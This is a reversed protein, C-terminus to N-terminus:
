RERSKNFLIAGDRRSRDETCDEGSPAAALRPCRRLLEDLGINAPVRTHHVSVAGAPSWGAEFALESRPEPSQVGADDYVDILTGDATWGTGDGCYDARFLRTCAQFRPLAKADPDWFRYGARLCKGLVGSTCTLALKGADPEFRGDDSWSGGLPIAGGEGNADPECINNWEGADDQARMEYLALGAEEQVDDIRVGLVENGIPLLLERGIWERGSLSTGDTLTARLATGELSLSTAQAPAVAAVCAVLAILAIRRTM